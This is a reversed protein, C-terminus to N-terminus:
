ARGRTVVTRGRGGFGSRLRRRRQSDYERQKQEEEQAQKRETRQQEMRFFPSEKYREEFGPLKSEFFERSTMGPTTMRERQEDRFPTTTLFKATQEYPAAAKKLAEVGPSMLNAQAAKAEMEQQMQALQAESYKAVPQFTEPDEDPDSVTGITAAQAAALDKAMQNAEAQLAAQKDSEASVMDKYFAEQELFSKTFEVGEGELRKREEPSIGSGSGIERAFQQRADAVRKEAAVREEDTLDPRALTSEYSAELQDLRRKQQEFAEEGVEGFVASAVAQQDLQEAGERRWEEAFGPLGMQQQVFRAYEPRDIEMNMLDDSVSQLSFPPAEAKKYRSVQLGPVPPPTDPDMQRTYDAENLDYAPLDNLMEIIEEETDVGGGLLAKRSLNPFVNKALHNLFEPSTDETILGRSQYEEFLREEIDANLTGRRDEKITGYGASINENLIRRFEPDALVEAESSYEGTGILGQLAMQQEPSAALYAQYDTESLEKQLIRQLIAQRGPISDAEGEAFPQDAIRQQVRDTVKQRLNDDALMEGLSTYNFVEPALARIDSTEFNDRVGEIRSLYEKAMKERAGVDSMDDVWAAQEISTLEGSLKNMFLEGNEGIRTDFMKFVDFAQELSPNDDAANLAATYAEGVTSTELDEILQRQLAGVTSQINKNSLTEFRQILGPPWAKSNPDLNYLEDGGFDKDNVAMLAKVNEEISLKFNWNKATFQSYKEQDFLEEAGMRPMIDEPGIESQLDTRFMLNEFYKEVNGSTRAGQELNELNSEWTEEFRDAIDDLKEAPQSGPNIGMSLLAVTAEEDSWKNIRNGNDDLKDDLISKYVSPIRGAAIAKDIGLWYKQEFTMYQPSKALENSVPGLLDYAITESPTRGSPDEYVRKAQGARDLEWDSFLNDQVFKRTGGPPPPYGSQSFDEDLQRSLDNIYKILAPKDMEKYVKYDRDIFDNYKALFEAETTVRDMPLKFLDMPAKPDEDIGAIKILGVNNEDTLSEIAENRKKLLSLMRGMDLDKVKQGPPNLRANWIALVDELTREGESL